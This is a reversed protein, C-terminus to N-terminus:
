GPASARADVAAGHHGAGAPGLLYLYARAVTEPEPLSQADEGPFFFRRMPSRVPGPDLTTVRVASTNELEDALVQALNEVGAAAVAYAGWYARGRRGVDAATFIVRGADSARLLPLCARTLLFPAHLNVQIVQGWLQPDYQELPTRLGPIAACHVLGDLRGLQKEVTAALEQHHQPTAGQLDLPYIAPQPGGAQEIADYTQELGPVNKDLLVATAGAGAVARAVASGLGGAAGTILVVRGALLGAPAEYDMLTKM